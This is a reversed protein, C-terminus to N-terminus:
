ARKIEFPKQPAIRVPKTVPPFGRANVDDVLHPPVHSMPRLRRASPELLSRTRGVVWHDLIDSLHLITM